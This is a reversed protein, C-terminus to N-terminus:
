LVDMELAEGPRRRAIRKRDPEGFRALGDRDALVLGQELGQFAGMLQVGSGKLDRGIAAMHALDGGCLLADGTDHGPALSLGLRDSNRAASAAIQLGWPSADAGIGIKRVGRGRAYRLLPVVAQDATLGLLFLGSDILAPDNSFTVVSRVPRRGEM